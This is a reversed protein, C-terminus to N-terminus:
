SQQGNKKAKSKLLQIGRGYPLGLSRAIREAHEEASEERKGESLIIMQREVPRGDTYALLIEAARAQTRYDQEIVSDGDQQMTRTAHLCRTLAEVAKKRLGGEELMEGLEKLVQLRKNDPVKDINDAM